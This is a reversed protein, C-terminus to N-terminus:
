KSDRFGPRHSTCRSGADAVAPWARCNRGPQLVGRLGRALGPGIDASSVGVGGGAHAARKAGLPRGHRSGQRGRVRRVHSQRGERADSRGTTAARRCDARATGADPRPRPLRATRRWEGVPERGPGGRSLSLSDAVDQQPDGVKVNLLSEPGPKGAPQSSSPWVLTKVLVAAGALALLVCLVILWLRAAKSPRGGAPPQTKTTALDPTVTPQGTNRRVAALKELAGPPLLLM